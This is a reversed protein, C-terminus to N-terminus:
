KPSPGLHYQGGRYEYVALVKCDDCVYRITWSQGAGLEGREMWAKYRYDSNIPYEPDMFTVPLGYFTIRIDEIPYPTELTVGGSHKYLVTERLPSSDCAPLLFFVLALFLFKV